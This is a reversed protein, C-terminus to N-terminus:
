QKLMEKLSMLESYERIYDAEDFEHSAFVLLSTGHTFRGLTLWTMPPVHLGVDSSALEIEGATEGDDLAVWCKGGLCIVFQHCERHAHAGRSAGEPIHDITFFRRVPFPMDRSLNAFVLHGRSDRQSNLHRLRAGAVDSTTGATSVKRRLMM